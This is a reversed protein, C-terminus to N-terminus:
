HEGDGCLSLTTVIGNTNITFPKYKVFLKELKSPPWRAKFNLKRSNIWEYLADITLVKKLYIDILVVRDDPTIGKGLLM